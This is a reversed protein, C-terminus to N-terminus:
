SETRRRSFHRVAPLYGQIKRPTAIGMRPPSPLVPAACRCDVSQRGGHLLEGLWTAEAQSRGGAPPPLLPSASPPACVPPSRGTRHGGGLRGGSPPPMPSRRHKLACSTEQKNVIIDLATPESVGFALSYALFTLAMAWFTSSSALSTSSSLVTRTEHTCVKESLM